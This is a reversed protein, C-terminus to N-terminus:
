GAYKTSQNAYVTHCSGATERDPMRLASVSCRVKWRLFFTQKTHLPLRVEGPGPAPDPVEGIDLNAVPDDGGYRVARVALV